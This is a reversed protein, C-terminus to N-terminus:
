AAPKAQQGRAVQALQLIFSRAFDLDALTIGAQLIDLIRRKFEGLDQSATTKTGGHKTGICGGDAADIIRHSLHRELGRFAKSLKPNFTTDPWVFLQARDSNGLHRQFKPLENASDWDLVVLVPAEPLRAKIAGINDKVYSQLESVGGTVPGGM